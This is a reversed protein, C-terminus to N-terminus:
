KHVFKKKSWIFISYKHLLDDRAGKILYVEFDPEFNEKRQKKSRCLSPANEEEDEM